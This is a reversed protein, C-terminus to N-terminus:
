PNFCLFGLWPDHHAFSGPSHRHQAEQRVAHAVSHKQAHKTHGLQAASFFMANAQWKTIILMSLVEHLQTPKPSPTCASWCCDWPFRRLGPIVFIRSARAYRM